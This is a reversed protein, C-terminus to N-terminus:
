TKQCLKLGFNVPRMTAGFNGTAATGTAPNISNNLTIPLQTSSGGSNITLTSDGTVLSSTAHTHDTISATESAGVATGTTDLGRGADLGRVFQLDAGVAFWGAPCATLYFFMIAGSPPPTVSAIQSNLNAAVGNGNNIVSNFDAMLQAPNVQQGVVFNFPVASFTQASAPCTLLFLAALRRM